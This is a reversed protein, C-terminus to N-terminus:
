SVPVRMSMGVASPATEAFGFQAYLADAPLDAILSVHANVPLTEKAHRVLAGVIAKGLGQGQHAPDVAIDVVQFFMGGDGVIRGMGVAQSGQEVVVAFATGPLGLRTAAEPFASLGAVARLHMHEAVTPLRTVLQYGNDLM